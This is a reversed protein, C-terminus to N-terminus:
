SVNIVEARETTRPNYFIVMLVPYSIGVFLILILWSFMIGDTVVDSSKIGSTSLAENVVYRTDTDLKLVQNAWLPETNDAEHALADFIEPVAVADM